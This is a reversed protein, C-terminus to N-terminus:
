KISFEFQHKIIEFDDAYYVRIMEPKGYITIMGQWKKPLSEIKEKDENSMGWTQIQKERVRENGTGLIAGDKELPILRMIKDVPGQFDIYTNWDEFASINAVLGNDIKKIIGLEDADLDFHKPNKPFRITLTGKVTSVKKDKLEAKDTFINVNSARLRRNLIEWDKKKDNFNTDFKYVFDVNENKDFSIEKGSETVVSDISVVAASIDNQLAKDDPAILDFDGGIERGWRDGFKNLCLLFAGLTVTQKDKCEDKHIVKAHEKLFLRKSTLKPEVKKGNGPEGYRPVIQNFEFPYDKSEMQEALVVEISAVKGKFRKSVNKTDNGSASSGSEVLYQGKNNKARVAMIHSTDGSLTYKVMSPTSKRLYMRVKGTEIAKGSFPLQVTQVKTRTAALIAIKGKIKSIKAVNVDQKLRVSKKGSVKISKALWKGEVYEKDRTTSLSEAVLNRTNGCPEERLLTNGEKDEVSSISLSALPTDTSQHMHEVSLNDFGKGEANITLEITSDDTALLGFRELRIGFPGVVNDPAHFVGKGDFPKVSSFDFQQAYQEIDEDKVIEEAGAPGAKNDGDFAGSFAMQLFEGPIKEINELMKRDATTKFRLINGDAHVNLTQILATLTPMEKLDSVAEIRWADYKTKVELPWAAENSHADILFTFGPSPLLSVVAGGYIDQLPQNSLAGLLLASPLDVASTKAEKPSMFVGAVAKEKRFERWKTLSVGARAKETLRKLIVPMMETSSLVIRDNKIQLAQKISVPKKTSPKACLEEKKAAETLKEILLYDAASEDVLYNQSIAKKLKDQSFRGFLVFSYAPKGESVNIAALAYDTESILNVGQNKLIELLTKEAKPEASQPVESKPVVLPSPDKEASFMKDIRRIFSMDVSAIAITGTTAVAEEANMVKAPLDDPTIAKIFLFYGAGAIIAILVLLIILIRKM